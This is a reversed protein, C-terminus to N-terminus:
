KEFISDMWLSIFRDTFARNNEWYEVDSKKLLVSEICGWLGSVLIGVDLRPNESHAMGQAIAKKLLEEGTRNCVYYEEILEPSA